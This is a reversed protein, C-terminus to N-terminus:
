TDPDPHEDYGPEAQLHGRVPQLRYLGVRDGADTRLVARLRCRVSPPILGGIPFTRSISQHVGRGNQYTVTVSTYKGVKQELTAAADITYPARIGIEVVPLQVRPPARRVRLRPAAPPTCNNSGLTCTSGPNLYLTTRQNLPTVRTGAPLAAESFRDYFIGFGGRLVTLTPKGNKRSHWLCGVFPPCFRQTSNIFNQVEMRICLSITLNDRAKWDDGPLCGGDLERASITAQFGPDPFVPLSHRVPLLISRIIHVPSTNPIAAYEVGFVSDHM